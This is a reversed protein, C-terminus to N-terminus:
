RHHSDFATEIPPLMTVAEPDIVEGQQIIIDAAVALRDQALLTMLDGPYDEDVELLAYWPAADDASVAIGRVANQRMMMVRM